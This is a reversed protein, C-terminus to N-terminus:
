RLQSTKFGQTPSREANHRISEEGNEAPMSGRGPQSPGYVTLTKKKYTLGTSAAAVRVPKPRIWPNGAQYAM